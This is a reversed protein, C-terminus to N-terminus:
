ARASLGVAVVVSCGGNIHCRRDYRRLTADKLAKDLDPRADRGKSGSIGANQYAAVIEHGARTAWQELERRQNEVTQGSTSVRLYLAVRAM